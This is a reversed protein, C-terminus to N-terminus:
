AALQENRYDSMQVVNNVRPKLIPKQVIKESDMIVLRDGQVIAEIWYLKEKATGREKGTEPDIVVSDHLKGHLKIKQDARGHQMKVLVFNHALSEFMVKGTVQVYGYDDDSIHQNVPVGIVTFSLYEEQEKHPKPSEIEDPNLTNPVLILTRPETLDLGENVVLEQVTNTLSAPYVGEEIDVTGNVADYTGTTLLRATQRIMM